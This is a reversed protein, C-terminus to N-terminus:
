LRSFVRDVTQEDWGIESLHARIEAEDYGQQFVQSVYEKLEMIEQNDEQSSNINNNYGGEDQKTKSQNQQRVKKAKGKMVFVAAGGGVLLIIIVLIIVSNMMGGAGGGGPTQLIGIEDEFAGEQLHEEILKKQSRTLKDLCCVLDGEILQEPTAMLNLAGCYKVKFAADCIINGGREVYRSELIQFDGNIAATALSRPSPNKITKSFSDYSSFQVVLDQSSLGSCFGSAKTVQWGRSSKVASLSLPQERDNIVVCISSQQLETFIASSSLVFQLSTVAEEPTIVAYGIYSLEGSILFYLGGAVLLLFLSHTAFLKIQEGEKKM